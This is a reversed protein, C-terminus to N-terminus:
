YKRFYLRLVKNELIMTSSTLTVVKLTEPVEHIGYHRLMGYDILIIDSSDRLDIIPESLIMRSDDISFRMFVNRIKKNNDRLHLLRVQFSWFKMSDRMDCSSGNALTDVKHLQWYGDLDGNESTHIECAAVALTFIFIYLLKKM